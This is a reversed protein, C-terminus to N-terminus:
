QVDKRMEILVKCLLVLAGDERCHVIDEDKFGAPKRIKYGYPIDDGRSLGKIRGTNQIQIEGIQEENVFLKAILM